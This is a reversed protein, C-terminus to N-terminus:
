LWSSTVAWVLFCLKTDKIPPLRGDVASGGCSLSCCNAELIYLLLYAASRRRSLYLEGCNNTFNFSHHHMGASYINCMYGKEAVMFKKQSHHHRHQM